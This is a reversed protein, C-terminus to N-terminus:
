SNIFVCAHVLVLVLVLALALAPAPANRYFNWFSNPHAVHNFLDGFSLLASTGSMGELTGFARAEHHCLMNVYNDYQLWSPREFQDDLQSIGSQLQQKYDDTTKYIEDLRKITALEAAFTRFEDKAQRQIVDLHTFLFPSVFQIAALDLTLRNFCDRSLMLLYPHGISFRELFSLYSAFYTFDGFSPVSEIKESLEYFQSSINSRYIVIQDPILILVEDAVLDENARFYFGGSPTHFPDLKKNM